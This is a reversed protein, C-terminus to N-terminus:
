NQSIWREDGKRAIPTGQDNPHHAVFCDNRSVTVSILGQSPVVFPPFRPATDPLRDLRRRPIDEPCKCKSLNYVFARHAAIADAAFRLAM